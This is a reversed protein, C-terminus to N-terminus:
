RELCRALLKDLMDLEQPALREALLQELGASVRAFVPRLEEGRPTLCVRVSRSDRGDPVREVFGGQELKEVLATVTSKSRRVRRALESMPCADQALLCVLIDGHSPALGTLGASQLEAQIYANGMERLRSANAFISRYTMADLYNSM